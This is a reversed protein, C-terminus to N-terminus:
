VGQAFIDIVADVNAQIAVDSATQINVVSQEKNAILVSFHVREAMRAPEEFAQKAWIVRNDHNDTVPDEQRIADAAVGVAVAVKNRFSNDSQLNYLEEYTAM